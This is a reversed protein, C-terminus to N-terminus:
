PERSESFNYDHCDHHESGWNWLQASGRLSSSFHKQYRPGPNPIHKTSGVGGTSTPPEQNAGHASGGVRPSDEEDDTQVTHLDPAESIDSGTLVTHIPSGAAHTNTDHPGDLGSSAEISWPSDGGVARALRIGVLGSLAVVAFLLVWIGLM